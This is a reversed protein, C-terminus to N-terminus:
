QTERSIENVPAMMVYFYTPTTLPIDSLDEWPKSVMEITTLCDCPISHPEGDCSLPLWSAPNLTNCHYFIISLNTLWFLRNIPTRDGLLFTGCARFKYFLLCLVGLTSFFPPRLRWDLHCSLGGHVPMLVSRIGWLRIPMLFISYFMITLCFVRSHM